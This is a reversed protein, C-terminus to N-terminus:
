LKVRYVEAGDNGYLSELAKDASLNKDSLNKGMPSLYVYDAGLDKWSVELRDYRGLLELIKEEPIDWRPKINSTTHYDDTLYAFGYLFRGNEFSFRTHSDCPLNPRQFYGALNECGAPMARWRLQRELNARSVGFLKQTKLFRDEMEANSILTNNYFPLYPRAGTYISLYVSDMFIPSIVKPEKPLNDGMWQWTAYIDPDFSYKKITTEEPNIFIFGNVIKKIVLLLILVVLLKNVLSRSSILVVARDWGIWFIMLFAIPSFALWWHNAVLTFGTILQVNWAIFIAGLFAWFLVATNGREGSQKRWFVLYTIVALVSYYIYDPWVRGWRFFRGIEVVGYRNIIEEAAPLANFAFYNIWYPISVAIAAGAKM